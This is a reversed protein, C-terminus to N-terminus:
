FIDMGCANDVSVEFGAVDKDVLIAIKLYAIEPKGADLVRLHRTINRCPVVAGRLNHQSPLLVIDLNVHPARTAYECFHQFASRQKRSLVM